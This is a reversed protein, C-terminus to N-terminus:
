EHRNEKRWKAFEEDFDRGDEKVIKRAMMEIKTLQMGSALDARMFEIAKEYEKIRGPIAMMGDIVKKCKVGDIRRCTM